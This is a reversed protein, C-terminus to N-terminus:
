KAAQAAQQKSLNQGQGNEKMKVQVSGEVAESTDQDLKAGLQQAAHLNNQRAENMGQGVQEPSTRSSFSSPDVWLLSPQQLANNLKQAQYANSVYIYAPKQQDATGDEQPQEAAATDDQTFYAEKLQQMQDPNLPFYSSTTDLFSKAQGATRKFKELLARSKSMKPDAKQPGEQQDKYQQYKRFTEQLMAQPIGVLKAHAYHASEKLDQLGIAEYDEDEGFTAAWICEQNDCDAQEYLWQYDELSRKYPSEQKEGEATNEESDDADAAEADNAEGEDESENNEEEERQEAEIRAQESMDALKQIIKEKTDASTTGLVVMLPIPESGADQQDEQASREDDASPQQEFPNGTRSFLRCSGAISSAQDGCDNFIVNALEDVQAYKEIPDEQPNLPDGKKPNIFLDEIYKRYRRMEERLMRERALREAETKPNPYKANARLTAIDNVAQDIEKQTRNRFNKRGSGGSTQAAATGAVAANQAVPALYNAMSLNNRALVDKDKAALATADTNASRKSFFRRREAASLRAANPQAAFLPANTPGAQAAGAAVPTDTSNVDYLAFDYNKPAYATSGNTSEAADQGDQTNAAANKGGTKKGKKHKAAARSARSTDKADAKTADAQRNRPAFLNKARALWTSLPNGNYIQPEATRMQEGNQENKHEQIIFPLLLFGCVLFLAILLGTKVNKKM